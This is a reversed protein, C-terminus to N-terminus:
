FVNIITCHSHCVPQTPSQADVKILNNNFTIRHVAHITGRADTLHSLLSPIIILTFSTAKISLTNNPAGLMKGSVGLVQPLFDFINKIRSVYILFTLHEYMESKLVETGRRNRRQSRRTGRRRRQTQKCTITDTRTRQEAEDDTPPASEHEENQKTTRSKNNTLTKPHNKTNFHRHFSQQFTPNRKNCLFVM